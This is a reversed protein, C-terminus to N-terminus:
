RLATRHVAPRLGESITLLAAGDATFGVSEAQPEEALEVACPVGALAEAVTQGEARPWLYARENYTRVVVAAGDPSIDGGTTAGGTLMPGSFSLDLARELTTAGDAHPAAKRFVVSAGGYDKTVLFLDQTLPDLLLTETDYAADPFVLELVVPTLTAEVAEQEPSVLPEPVEYVRVFARERQNDGVDGVYIRHQGSRPDQGLALDEWDGDPAGELTWTGLLRGGTSLAYLRPGDGRDNHVWLVGPNRRSAVVGSLERLADDQVRGLEEAPAGTPCSEAQLWVELTAQALAGDEATVTATITTVGATEFRHDVEPGEGEGGDGFDWAVTWPQGFASSGTADLHVDMPAAGYRPAATIVAVPPQTTETDAPSEPPATDDGVPSEAPPDEHFPTVGDKGSCALLTLLLPAVM